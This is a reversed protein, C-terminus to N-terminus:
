ILHKAGWISSPGSYKEVSIRWKWHSAKRAQRMNWVSYRRNSLALKYIIVKLESIIMRVNPPLGLLLSTHRRSQEMPIMLDWFVPLHFVITSSCYFFTISKTQTDLTSKSWSLWLWDFISSFLKILVFMTSLFEWKRRPQGGYNEWLTSNKGGIPSKDFEFNAAHCALNTKLFSIGTASKVWLVTRTAKVYFPHVLM